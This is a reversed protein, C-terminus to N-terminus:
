ATPLSIIFRTGGSMSEVDITGHMLEIFKKASYLGLGTGPIENDKLERFYPTFVKNLNEEYIGQGSDEVLTQFM